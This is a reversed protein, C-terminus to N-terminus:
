PRVTECPRSRPACTPSIWSTCGTPVHRFPSRRPSMTIRAPLVARLAATLERSIVDVGDPMEGAADIRDLWESVQDLSNFLLFHRGYPQGM